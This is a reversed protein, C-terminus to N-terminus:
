HEVFMIFSRLSQWIVIEESSSTKHPMERQGLIGEPKGWNLKCDAAEGHVCENQGAM